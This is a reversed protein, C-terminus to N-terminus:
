VTGTAAQLPELAASPPDPAGGGHIMFVPHQHILKKAAAIATAADCADDERVTQIRRGHIGGARNAENYVVDAGNMVLKGYLYYPGTLAGLYGIKITDATLGTTQAWGPGAALASQVLMVIPVAWAMLRARRM